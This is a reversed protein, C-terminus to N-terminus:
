ESHSPKKKGLYNEATRTYMYLTFLLPNGLNTYPFLPLPILLRQLPTIILSATSGLSYSFPLSSMLSISYITFISPDTSQLDWDPQFYLLSYSEDCAERFSYFSFFSNIIKGLEKGKRRKLFLLLLLVM